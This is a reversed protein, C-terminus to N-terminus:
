RRAVFRAPHTWFALLTREPLPFRVAVQGNTRAPRIEFSRFDRSSSGVASVPRERLFHTLTSPSTPFQGLAFADGNPGTFLAASLHVGSVFAHPIESEEDERQEGGDNVSLKHHSDPVKM